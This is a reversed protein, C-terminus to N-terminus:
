QNTDTRLIHPPHTPLHYTVASCECNIYVANYLLLLLAPLGCDRERGKLPQSRGTNPPPPPLNYTVASCECNIYVTYYQLSLLAPLGHCAGSGEITPIQTCYTSPSLHYTTLSLVASVLSISQITSCHCYLQYAMTVSGIQLSLLAPLGHCAGSGEITPIQAITPIQTCYTSPSLHYTTLSLVASVLSISQITSCHCYLQYAM